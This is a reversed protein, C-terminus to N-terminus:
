ASLGLRSLKVDANVIRWLAKRKEAQARGM